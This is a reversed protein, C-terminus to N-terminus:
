KKYLTFLTSYILYLYLSSSVVLALSLFDPKAEVKGKWYKGKKKQQLKRGM